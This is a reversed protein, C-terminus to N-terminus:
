KFYYSVSNVTYVQYGPIEYIEKEFILHKEPIIAIGDLSFISVIDIVSKNTLEQIKKMVLSSKSKFDQGITKKNGTINEKFNSKHWSINKVHNLFKVKEFNYIETESHIVIEDIEKSLNFKHRIENISDNLEILKSVNELNTTEQIKIDSVDTKLIEAYEPILMEFILSLENMIFGITSICMQRTKCDESRLNIRAIKFYKRSLDNTVFNYVENPILSINFDKVHKYINEKMTTFKDFIWFDFDLNSDIAVFEKNFKETFFNIQSSYLSSINRIRESFTKWVMIEAESVSFDLGRAAGSNLLYMKLVPESYKAVLESVSVFNKSSKSFKKKDSDMIFGNILINRTPSVGNIITSLVLLNYFWGKTQDAGEILLEVQKQPSEQAAFQCGSEFWCDFVFNCHKYNVVCGDSEIVHIVKPISNLHFDSNEFGHFKLIDEPTLVKIKGENSIWMPIPTGFIRTRSICWDPAEVITDYMRKRGIDNVFNITEFNTLVSDKIKQVNLNVCDVAKFYLRKDTRPCFGVSHSIQKEKYILNNIKLDNIIDKNCERMDRNNYKEITFRMKSDSHDYFDQVRINNKVCIRFDDEGYAPALHVVGTGTEPTVYEDFFIDRQIDNEYFHSFYKLNSFNHSDYEVYDTIGESKCFDISSIVNISTENVTKQFICYKIKTNVCLAMNSYLTFPTTTWVLIYVSETNTKFYVFISKDDVNKYNDKAESSSICTELEPSYSQVKKSFYILDKSYVSEFLKWVNKMYETSQTSNGNYHLKPTLTKFTQVWFDSIEKTYKKCEEIFLSSDLINNEYMSKVKQETPIGHVDFRIENGIESKNFSFFVDKMILNLTHGLHPEGTPFPPGFLMSFESM